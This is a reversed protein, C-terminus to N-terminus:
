GHSHDCISQRDGIADRFGQGRAIRAERPRGRSFSGFPDVPNIVTLPASATRVTPRETAKRVDSRGGLDASFTTATLGLGGPSPQSPWSRVGAGNGSQHKMQAQSRSSTM